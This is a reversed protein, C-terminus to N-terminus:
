CTAAEAGAQHASEITTLGQRLAYLTAEVRNRLSLKTLLNSVHTRVTAKSIHLQRAVQDDDLGQAVLGLVQQERHTLPIAAQAPQAAPEALRLVWDIPIFLEGRHLQRIAAVLTDRECGKSLYGVAGARLAELTEEKTASGSLVLVRIEPAAALIQRIAEVGDMEPMQLDMLVVDPRSELALRVAEKGHSAEGVVTIDDAGVLLSELGKRVVFHDDVVLVSIQSRTM